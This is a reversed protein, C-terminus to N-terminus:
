AELDKISLGIKKGEADVQTIVAKVIEGIKLVDEIKEVRENSIQSIHVLGDIGEELEVFAGFPAFRVVKGAVVNGTPYKENINNWPNESLMKVSLALKNNERDVELVGVKIIQGVKFLKSPNNVKNWSMESSHLLGDIGNIEVFAGFATLRKVEGEVVMGKELSAWTTAKKVENEKELLERRSGVIKVRNRERSYEILKIDFNQGIYKSLDSVRSLEIHSAPIFVREGEFLAVLGGKVEQKVQVNIIEGNDFAAKLVQQQEARLVETRSLVVLGDSNKRNIVKAKIVDGVKIQQNLPTENDRSYEDATLIAETKTGITLYAEKENVKFVEGELISGVSINSTDKFYKDYLDMDEQSIDNQKKMKSIAEEIVYEPTSAGATIGIKNINENGIMNLLSLDVKEVHYTNECNKKCIEYLKTTNSSNYGGLVIMLDVEKSLKNASEQREETANCITNFAVIEKALSIIRNLVKEWNSQKETTQSVVCVKSKIADINEGDKSIIATDNCWGNIGIVEPHKDDGVIIINYGKNYYEEVKQQINRVYPCTGNEIIVNNKRLHDFVNKGVGHSRIVVVDNKKLNYAEELTISHIGKKELSKVVDNNHILPGLTYIDKNYKERLRITEEVARKVGFCFGAKNALTVKSM